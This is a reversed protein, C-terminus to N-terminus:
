LRFAYAHVDNQAVSCPLALELDGQAVGLRRQVVDQVRRSARVHRLRDRDVAARDVRRGARQVGSQM